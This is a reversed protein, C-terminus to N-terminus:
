TSCVGIFLHVGEQNLAGSREIYTFNSLPHNQFILHNNEIHTAIPTINEYRKVHKRAGQVTFLRLDYSVAYFKTQKPPYSTNTSQETSTTTQM